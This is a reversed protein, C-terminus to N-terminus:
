GRLPTTFTQWPLGGWSVYLGTLETVASIAGSEVSCGQCMRGVREGDGVGKWVWRGKVEKANHAQLAREWKKKNSALM